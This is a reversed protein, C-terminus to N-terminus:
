LFSKASIHHTDACDNSGPFFNSSNICSFPIFPAANQFHEPFAEFMDIATVLTLTVERSFSTGTENGTFNSLMGKLHYGHKADAVGTTLCPNYETNLLSSVNNRL